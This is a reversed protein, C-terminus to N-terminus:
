GEPQRANLDVPDPILADKQNKRAKLVSISGSPELVVLRTEALSEVGSARLAERLNSESVTSPHERIVAGERALEIASGEVLRSLIPSQAAARALVWHLAVLVTVAALTGFLPANGTLARSLTSGTVIAVVIDLASWTAFIRRGALRVIILGYAFILAARACEQWWVIGATAGFLDDLAM